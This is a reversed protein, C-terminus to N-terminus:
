CTLQQAQISETTQPASSTSAMTPHEGFRNRGPTSPLLTFVLLIIVGLFPLLAILLWWGSKDTDHLRRVALAFQPIITLLVFLGYFVPTQGLVLYDIFSAVVGIIITFLVFLWYQPRTARGSFNFYNRYPDILYHM